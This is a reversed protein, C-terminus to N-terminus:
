YGRSRRHATLREGFPSYTYHAALSGDDNILDTVNGNGDYFYSAATWGTGNPRVMALLGGIGGSGEPSGALDLGRTYSRLTVFNADLEEVM